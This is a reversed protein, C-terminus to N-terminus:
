DSRSEAADGAVRRRRYRFDCHSAGEMCTQTRTLALGAREAMAFDHGCILLPGLDRADLREMLAAYGCRTVDLEFRDEDSALIEYELAGGAAYVETGAALRRPDGPEPHAARAQETDRKLSEALAANVVDEGLARQLSRVLPVVAEMQISLRELFTLPSSM